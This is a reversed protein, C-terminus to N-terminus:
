QHIDMYHYKVQLHNVARDCQTFPECDCDTCPYGHLPIKGIFVQTVQLHNLWLRHVVCSSSPSLFGAVNEMWLINVFIEKSLLVFYRSIGNEKNIFILTAEGKINTHKLFQIPKLLNEIHLLCNTNKSDLKKQNTVHILQKKRYLNNGLTLM